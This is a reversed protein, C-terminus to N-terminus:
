RWMGDLIAELLDSPQAKFYDEEELEEQESMGTPKVTPTQTIQEAEAEEQPLTGEERMEGVTKKPVKVDPAMAENRAYDKEAQTMATKWDEESATSTPPEEYDEIDPYAQAFAETASMGQDMLEEMQTPGQGRGHRKDWHVMKDHRDFVAEDRDYNEM